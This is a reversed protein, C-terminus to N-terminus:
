PKSRLRREHEAAVIQEELINLMCPINPDSGKPCKYGSEKTLCVYSSEPICTCFIDYLLTIQAELQEVRNELHYVKLDLDHITDDDDYAM